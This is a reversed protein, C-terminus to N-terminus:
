FEVAPPSLTVGVLAKTAVDVAKLELQLQESAAHGAKGFQEGVQQYYASADKVLTDLVWGPVTVMDSQVVPPSQVLQNM